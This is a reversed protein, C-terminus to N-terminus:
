QCVTSENFGKVSTLENRIRHRRARSVGGFNGIGWVSHKLLM